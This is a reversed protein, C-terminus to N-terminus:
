QGKLIATKRDLLADWERLKEAVYPHDTPYDRWIQLVEALDGLAYQILELEAEQKAHAAKWQLDAHFEKVITNNM